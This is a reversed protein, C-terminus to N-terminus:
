SPRRYPQYKEVATNLVSLLLNREQPAMANFRQAMEIADDFGTDGASTATASYEPVVAAFMQLLRNTQQRRKKPKSQLTNALQRYVEMVQDTYESPSDLPELKQELYELMVLLRQTNSLLVATDRIYALFVDRTIQWQNLASLDGIEDSTLQQHLAQRLVRADKQQLVLIEMASMNIGEGMIGLSCAQCAKLEPKLKAAEKKTAALTQECAGSDVTTIAAVSIDRLVPVCTEFEEAKSTLMRDRENLANIYPRLSAAFELNSAWSRLRLYSARKANFNELENQKLSRCTSIQSHMKRLQQQAEKMLQPCDREATQATVQFSIAMALVLCVGMACFYTNRKVRNKSAISYADM